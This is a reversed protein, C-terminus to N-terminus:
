SNDLFLRILGDPEIQWIALMGVEGHDKENPRKEPVVTHRCRHGGPGRYRATPYSAKPGGFIFRAHRVRFRFALGGIEIYFPARPYDSRQGIEIVVLRGRDTASYLQKRCHRIEVM